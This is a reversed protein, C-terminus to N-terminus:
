FISRVSNLDARMQQAMAPTCVRVSALRELADRFGPSARVVAPPLMNHMHHLVNGGAAGHLAVLELYRLAKDINAACRSVGHALVDDSELETEDFLAPNILIASASMVAVAGTAALCREADARSRVNGNAVIACRHGLDDVLRRIVNWDALHAGSRKQQRTRAHITVVSAGADVVATAFALTREYEPFIRTKVLVPVSLHDALMRVMGRVLEVEDMLFAGYHGHEACQQPCGLNLEVADCREEVARAARLLTRADNASFQVVLPRDASGPLGDFARAVLEASVAFGNAPLMQTSAIGCGRERVLLRFPLDSAGVM